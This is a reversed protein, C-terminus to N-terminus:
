ISKAATALINLSLPVSKGQNWGLEAIMEIRRMVRFPQLFAWYALTKPDSLSLIGFESERVQIRDFGANFLVFDISHETFSCHHTWDNYRWRSALSSNANPVKCMIVGNENLASNISKLLNLQCNTPVHELVDLLIVLDYKNSKDRLFESSDDVKKVNLGQKICFDVQGLDTDIGEINRYGLDRLASLAFGMGCGIDLIFADKHQPLLKAFMKKYSFIQKTVYKESDQHFKKYYRGYDTDQAMAKKRLV